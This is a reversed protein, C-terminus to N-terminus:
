PDGSMRKGPAPETAHAVGGPVLEPPIDNPMEPITGDKLYSYAFFTSIVRKSYNRTEDYPIEEAFEDMPWDGRERLWRLTAGEGANYSPVVLGIRRHFKDVLFALFRSGITVNKDPDRLTTRSVVIGTGRAFRRATPFIMQTLGIANAFSEMLPDFASEERVFSILLETPYGEQKAHKDLIDWWAHPYAIDWRARNAGVPWARQYGLLQWRTVWHSESYRGAHHYLFAMAWLKDIRDPDTVQHKGPPPALGIRRMEAEAPDGLGLRLFELARRFAPSSYLARPKFHFSPQSPDWGAPPKQIEAVVTKFQDPYKDRLRNLALLSYYSLPYTMVTDRYAAVAQEPKKLRDMSRGIWYQAQGEAWYNHDIPVAAIQKKLWAVASDFKGDKYDRWALRWLAEARMDGQPYLRPLTSLLETVKDPQNLEEAEEAERLRADDGFSHATGAEKEARAYRQIAVDHQGINSYSRGAQYAARVLLDRNKVKSCALIADDFLPAARTRDRQKFVSQARNYAAVCRMSDDLGPAGLAAEFDAESEKNRMNHFYVMGREILEAADLQALHNREEASRSALLADIRQSALEAWRSLPASVTIKRYLALADPLGSAAATTGQGTDAVKEGSAAKGGAAALAEEAQALRFRAEALRIGGPRQTLYARYHAAVKAQDGQDRLIDGVLLEADAGVISTASVQRAHALAASADHSLYRSRAAQYHLWDSLLPIAVLAKEFGRAADAHHGLEADCLAVMLAVRARMEGRVPHKGGLLAAFGKRAGTWDELAFRDAAARARGTAFYPTAMNVTLNVAQSGVADAPLAAQSAGASAGAAQSIGAQAAAGGSGAAATRSGKGGPPTPTQAGGAAPGGSCNACGAVVVVLLASFVLLRRGRMHSWSYYSVSRVAVRQCKAGGGAASDAGARARLIAPWVAGVGGCPRIRRERILAQGHASEFGQDAGDSGGDSGGAGGGGEDRGGAGGSGLMDPTCLVVRNRGQSKAQYLARDAADLMEHATEVGLDPICAVGVSATVPIIVGDEDIRLHEIGRRLREAFRMADSASILRSMVAFEEGGYRAFVDENRITDIIHGAFEALVRDGVLHGHTDNIRKFHDVDFLLLALPSRHRLSFRMEGHLRDLFYRKNYARTLGDRLASDFMRRQFSEELQDHFSFKLVTTRGLQIKDGDELTVKDIREGNLYTGNRSDLDEVVLSDGDLRIRCHFRSIGEDVLRVDAGGGRGLTVADGGIKYMEGVNSGALVIIYAREDTRRLSRGTPPGAINTTDDWDTM